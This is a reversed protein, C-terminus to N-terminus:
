GESRRIKQSNEKEDPDGGARGLKHLALVFLGWGVLLAVGGIERHSTASVAVGVITVAAALFVTRRATPEDM